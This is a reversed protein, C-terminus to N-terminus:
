SPPAEAPATPAPKGKYIPTTAVADLPDPAPKAPQGAIAQVWEPFLVAPPTLQQYAAELLLQNEWCRADPNAAHLAVHARIYLSPLDM